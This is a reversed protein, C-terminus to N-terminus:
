EVLRKICATLTAWHKLLVTQVRLQQFYQSVLNVSLSLHSCEHLCACTFTHVRATNTKREGMRSLPQRRTRVKHDQPGMYGCRRGLEQRYPREAPLLQLNEGRQQEHRSCISERGNQRQASPLFPVSGSSQTLPWLPHCCFASNASCLDTSLQAAPFENGGFYWRIHSTYASNCTTFREPPRPAAPSFCQKRLLPSFICRWSEAAILLERM